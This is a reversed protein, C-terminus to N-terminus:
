DTIFRKPTWIFEYMDAWLQKNKPTIRLHDLNNLFDLSSSLREHPHKKKLLFCSLKAM